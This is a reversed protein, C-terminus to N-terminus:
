SFTWTGSLRYGGDVEKWSGIPAYSSSARTDPSDGWFEDQMREDMLAIEFSHVNLQGGIWAASTDWEAVKMISEFFSAPDAELGGYRLPTFARFVGAEVMADVSKDPVRGDRESDDAGASLVDAAKEVAAVLRRGAAYAR